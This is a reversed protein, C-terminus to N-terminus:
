FQYELEALMAERDLDNTHKLMAIIHEPFGQYKPFLAGSHCKDKILQRFLTKNSPRVLPEDLMLTYEGSNITEFSKMKSSSMSRVNLSYKVEYGKQGMNGLIWLAMKWRYCHGDLEIIYHTDNREEIRFHILKNRKEM